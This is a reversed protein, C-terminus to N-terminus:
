SQNVIKNLLFVSTLVAVSLLSFSIPPTSPNIFADFHKKLFPPEKNTKGASDIILYDEGFVSNDKLKYDTQNLPIVVYIHDVSAYKVCRMDM